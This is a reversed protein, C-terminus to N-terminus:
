AIVTWSLGDWYQVVSRMRTDLDLDKISNRAEVESRFPGLQTNPTRVRFDGIRPDRLSM